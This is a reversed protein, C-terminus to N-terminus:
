IKALFYYNGWSKIVVMIELWITIWFWWVCLLWWRLFCFILVPSEALFFSFVRCKKSKRIQKNVFIDHKWIHKCCPFMTIKMLFTMILFLLFDVSKPNVFQKYVCKLAKPNCRYNKNTSTHYKLIVSKFSMITHTLFFNESLVNNKELSM